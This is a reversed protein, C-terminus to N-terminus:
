SAKTGSTSRDPPCPVCPGSVPSCIWCRGRGTPDLTTGGNATPGVGSFAALTAPDAATFRREANDDYAVFRTELAADPGADTDTDSLMVTHVGAQKPSFAYTQRGPGESSPLATAPTVTGDPATVLLAPPDTSGRAPSGAASAEESASGRRLLTLILEDDIALSRTSLRLAVGDGPAGDGGFVLFRTLTSWFSEYVGGLAPDRTGAMRWRWFGEGMVAAVTGRGYPMLAIAPDRDDETANSGADSGNPNRSFTALVRTGPKATAGTLARDPTIQPLDAPQPNQATASMLAAFVPHARGTPTLYFGPTGSGSATGPGPAADRGVPSLTDLANLLEPDGTDAAEGRTFVVRGGRENVYRPLAIAAAAPLVDQVGRGLLILDYVCLEDYNRPAAASTGETRTLIREQRDASIQTIQTLEIRDDRRLTQAIFKTDWFPRGELLLVRMRQDTVEVLVTQQNNTADTEGPLPDLSM